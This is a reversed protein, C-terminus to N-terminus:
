EHAGTQLAQLVIRLMAVFGDLDDRFIEADLIKRQRGFDVIQVQATEAAEAIEVVRPHAAGDVEGLFTQGHRFFDRRTLHEIETKDLLRQSFSLASKQRFDSRFIEAAALARRCRRHLRASQALRLAPGSLRIIVYRGRRGLRASRTRAAATKSGRRLSLEALLRHRRRAARPLGTLAVRSKEKGRTM